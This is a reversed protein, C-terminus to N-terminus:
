NLEIPFVLRTQHGILDQAKIEMESPFSSLANVFVSDQKQGLNFMVTDTDIFNITQLSLGLEDKFTITFTSVMDQDSVTGFFTITDDPAIRLVGDSEIPPFSQFDQIIPSEGEQLVLFQITSDISGNGREDSIQVSLEYLGALATDPVQYSFTSSFTTGSIDRIEVLEWFGFSKSFAERIRARVQALEENDAGSITATLMQGPSYTSENIQLSTIIPDEEDDSAIDCGSVTCLTFFFLCAKRIM